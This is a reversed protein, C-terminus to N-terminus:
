KVYCNRSKRLIFRSFKPFGHKFAFRGDPCVAHRPATGKWVDRSKSLGDPSNLCGKQLPWKMVVRRKEWFSRAKIM